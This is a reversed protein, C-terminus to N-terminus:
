GACAAGGRPRRDEQYSGLRERCHAWAQQLWRVVTSASVGYAKGLERVSEGQLSRWVVNPSVHPISDIARQCDVRLSINELQARPPLSGWSERMIYLLQERVADTALGRQYRRCKDIRAVWVVVRLVGHCETDPGCADPAVDVLGAQPYLIFMERVPLGSLIAEM